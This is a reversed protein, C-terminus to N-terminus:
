WGSMSGLLEEYRNRILRYCECAAEELRARDVVTMHGRQYQIHRAQQLAGAILTVTLRRVGILEALVSFM